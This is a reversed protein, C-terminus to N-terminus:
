ASRRREYLLVIARLISTSPLRQFLPIGNEAINVKGPGVKTFLLDVIRCGADLVKLDKTQDYYALLGLLTCKQGWVDLGWLYHQKDYTGIYGDPTQTQLLENLATDIKALHETTPQYSYALMASLIWKGWYDCRWGSFDNEIRLRFPQVLKEISQAMVRNDICLNIKKGLYGEIKASSSSDGKNLM